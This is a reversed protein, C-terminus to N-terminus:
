PLRDPWAPGPSLRGPLDSPVPWPVFSPSLSVAMVGGAVGSVEVGFVEVGFMEAGFVEAGFAEVEAASSGSSISSRVRAWRRSARSRAARRSASPQVSSWHRTMRHRVSSVPREIPSRAWASSMGCALRLRM